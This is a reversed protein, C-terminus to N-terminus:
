GAPSILGYHGDYRRYLVCGRAHEADLYFLFPLGKLDLQDAAEDVSLLPAPQTSITAPVSFSNLQAPAPNVQAVRLGTPGARYIVSDQGSGAETFLHFDYGMADMEFTADDITAPASSFSKHLIIQREDPERSFYAPQNTHAAEQRWQSPDNAPTSRKTARRQALRDLRRRLRAELLDVAERATPADVQARIPTGNIDLNAEAIVPRRAAPNPLVTIRARAQLVPERVHGAATAIKAQAYEATGSPVDGSVNVQVQAPTIATARRM